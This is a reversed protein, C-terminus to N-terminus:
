LACSFLRGKVILTEQFNQVVLCVKVIGEVGCGVALVHGWYMDKCWSLTWGGDAEKIVIGQANRSGAAKSGSGNADNTNNTLFSPLDSDEFSSGLAPIPIGGNVGNTKESSSSSHPPASPLPIIDVTDVNTFHEADLCSYVRLLNDTALAAQSHLSIKFSCSQNLSVLKLGFMFPAFEVARVSGKADTLVTHLRWSTGTSTQRQGQSGSGNVTTKGSSSGLFGPVWEWIKVTRDM